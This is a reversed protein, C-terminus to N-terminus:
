GSGGSGPPLTTIEVTITGVRRWAITPWPPPEGTLAFFVDESDDSAITPISFEEEGPDVVGDVAGAKAEDATEFFLGTVADGFTPAHSHNDYSFEASIAGPSSDNNTIRIQNNAIDDDGAEPPKDLYWETAPGPATEVDNNELWVGGSADEHNYVFRMKGWEITVNYNVQEPISFLEDEPELISRFWVRKSVDYEADPNVREPTSISHEAVECPDDCFPTCGHNRSEIYLNGSVPTGVM